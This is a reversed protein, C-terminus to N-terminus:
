RAGKKLDDRVKWLMLEMCAAADEQSDHGDVGNQIIKSLHEAMLTRLARKYPLGRRHPFVAATDVVTEHILRLARLDSDLSHGLLITDASFRALLAAQVDRLNTKGGVMDEETLGSFRTNYDLIQGRPKVLKEYVPRLDWGVVTVRTLEVGESTYCMECDLAYVGPCGGGPPPSKALTSVFGTLQSPEPGEHVHGKAVCCGDSEGDGECCSYRSELAGAIRKKWLRGWHHVCEEPRVYDGDETLSFTAGCRSCRLVSGNSKSYQRGDTGAFVARGPEAPHPRPYNYEALQEPTMRYVELLEYFRKETLEPPPKRYRNKEISFSTRAARAGQLVMEHSVVRNTPQVPAAAPASTGAGSSSSGASSAGGDQASERRLRKLTNVAVNLYVTKGSSREYTQKEESLAKQIAEDETSCCKACEDLFLNLYRQRVATPVRSGYEAPITPRKSLVLAPVHAVRPQGKPQSAVVHAATRTGQPLQALASRRAAALLPANAVPAVRGQGAAQFRQHLQAFRNHMAQAASVHALLGQPALPRRALDPNHAVRKKTPIAPELTSEVARKTHLREQPQTATGSTNSPESAENFIRLCEEVPDEEEESDLDWELVFSPVEVTAEEKPNKGSTKGGDSGREQCSSADSSSSESESSTSKAEQKDSDKAGSKKKQSSSSSSSSGQKHSSSRKSSSHHSSKSDGEKKKKSPSHDKASTSSPRKLSHNSSSHKSSSSHESSHNSSSHHSSSSSHKSSSHHSSHKSSSQKSSSNKSSSRHSSSSKSSSHKSSHKSSSHRSSSHKDSSEKAPPKSASKSSSGEESPSKLQPEKCSEKSLSDNSFTEKSPSEKSSLVKSSTEQPSAGKSSSDKSTSEKASSEKSSSHKSSSEKSRRSSLDRYNGKSSSKKTSSEKSSSKASSKEKSSPEKSSSEKSSREKSSHKSSSHKSSSHKSQSTKSSSHKNSSDHKSSSHGKSTSSHGSHHGESSDEKQAQEAIDGNAMNGDGGEKVRSEECKEERADEKEKDPPEHKATEKLAKDKDKAVDTAQAESSPKAFSGDPGGLRKDKLRVIADVEEQVMDADDEDNVGSGNVQSSDDSSLEPSKSQKVPEALAVPAASRIQNPQTPPRNTLLNRRRLEALPTPRYQPVSQAPIYRKPKPEPPHAAVPTPVYGLSSVQVMDQRVRRLADNVYELLQSSEDARQVTNAQLGLLSIGKKEHSFHCHPRECLGSAFFPCPLKNFFGNSPLM